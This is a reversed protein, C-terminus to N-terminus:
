FRKKYIKNEYDVVSNNLKIGYKDLLNFINDSTGNKIIDECISLVLVNDKYYLMHENVFYKRKVLM